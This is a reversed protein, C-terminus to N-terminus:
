KKTKAFTAIHTHGSITKEAELLDRVVTSNMFIQSIKQEIKKLISGQTQTQRVYDDRLAIYTQISLPEEAYDVLDLQYTEAIYEFVNKGWLTMHHPPMNLYNYELRGLFGDNNPVAIILLGNDNLKEVMAGIFDGPNSLHELVQFSVITDFKKNLDEINDDTVTLNKSRASSIADPNIELGVANPVIKSVKQLFFGAGCGFELLSNINKKALYNLVYMFEWKNHDYYWDNQSLNEYFNSDGPILPTFFSISCNLCKNKQVNPAGEEFVNSINIQLNEWYDTISKTDINREIISSSSKCLPCSTNM